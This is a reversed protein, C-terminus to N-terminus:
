PIDTLYKFCVNLRLLCEISSVYALLNVLAPTHTANRNHLQEEHKKKAESEVDHSKFHYEHCTANCYSKYCNHPISTLNPRVWKTTPGILKGGTHLKGDGPPKSGGLEPGIISLNREMSLPFLKELSKNLRIIFAVAEGLTTIIVDARATINPTSADSGTGVQKIGDFNISIAIGDRIGTKVLKVAREATSAGSDNPLLVIIVSRFIRGIKYNARHDYQGPQIKEGRLRASKIEERDKELFEEERREFEKCLRRHILVIEGISVPEETEMQILKAIFRKFNIDKDHINGEWWQEMLYRYVSYTNTIKLPNGWAPFYVCVCRNCLNKLEHLKLSSFHPPSRILTLPNKVNESELAIKFLSEHELRTNHLLEENTQPDYLVGRVSQSPDPM